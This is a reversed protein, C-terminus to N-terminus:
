SIKLKAISVRMRRKFGKLKSDLVPALQWFTTRMWLLIRKNFSLNHMFFNFIFRRKYKAAKRIAEANYNVNEKLLIHHNIYDLEKLCQVINQVNQESLLPEFNHRLCEICNVSITYSSGVYYRINRLVQQQQAVEYEQKKTVQHLSGKTVRYDLLVEPLNYIKSRRSIQWFLEFDESYTVSYVGAEKVVKKQYLVSPHYIWCIFTLNYYYHDSNFKDQRIFRGDEAIVRVSCSVLGCEPHTDMYNLQKELREPYSIDDADMRAILGTTSLEIGRNLTCSIGLNTANQYFRIRPDQYSQIIAVSQDTSGDDIILFEFDSFTQGLISEIAVRLYKEANYVPM